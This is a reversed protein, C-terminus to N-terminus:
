WLPLTGNNAALARMAERFCQGPDRFIESGTFRVIKGVQLGIARDRAKDRAAQDKTKEHWQHGDCEIVVCNSLEPNATVGLLFDARYSEIPHQPALFFGRRVPVEPYAFSLSNGSLAVNVAFVVALAREIESGMTEMVPWQRYQWAALKAEAAM